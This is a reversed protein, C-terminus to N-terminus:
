NLKVIRGATEKTSKYKMYYFIVIVIIILIVIGIIIFLIDGAGGFLGGLFGSFMDKVAEGMMGFLDEADPQESQVLTLEETGGRESQWIWDGTSFEPKSLLSEAEEYNEIEVNSQFVITTEYEKHIAYNYVHSSQIVYPVDEDGSYDSSFDWNKWTNMWNSPWSFTHHETYLHRRNIKNKTVTVQPSIQIQDTFTHKGWETNDFSGQSGEDILKQRETKVFSSVRRVGLNNERIFNLAQGDTVGEEPDGIYDTGIDVWQDKDDPQTLIDDYKGVESWESDAVKLSKAKYDYYSKSIKIDGLEEGSYDHFEFNPNLGITIPIQENYHRYNIDGLDASTFSVTYKLGPQPQIDHWRAIHLFEVNIQNDDNMNPWITNVTETTYAYIEFGFTVRYQFTFTGDKNDISGLNAAEILDKGGKYIKLHDNPNVDTVGLYLWDSTITNEDNSPMAIGKSTPLTSLFLSFVIMVFIAVTKKKKKKKLNFM